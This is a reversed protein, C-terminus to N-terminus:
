PVVQRSSLLTLIASCTSAQEDLEADGGTEQLNIRRLMDMYRFREFFGEFLARSPLKM